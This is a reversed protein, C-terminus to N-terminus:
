QTAELVQAGGLSGLHLLPEVLPVGQEVREPVVLTLAREAPALLQLGLVRDALQPSARAVVPSRESAKRRSATFRLSRGDSRFRSYMSASSARALGMARRSRVHTWQM